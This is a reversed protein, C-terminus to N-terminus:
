IEDDDGQTPIVSVNLDIFYRVGVSASSIPVCSSNNMVRPRTHAMTLAMLNRTDYPTHIAPLQSNTVLTVNMALTGRYVNTINGM